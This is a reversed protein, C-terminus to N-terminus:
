ESALYKKFGSKVKPAKDPACARFLRQTLTRLVSAAGIAEDWLLNQEGYHFGRRQWAATHGKVLVLSVEQSDSGSDCVHLFGRTDYIVRRGDPFEAQSLGCSPWEPLLLPQLPHFTAHADVTANWELGGKSHVELHYVRGKEKRVFLGGAIGFGVHTIESIRHRKSVVKVPAAHKTLILSALAAREGHPHFKEGDFWPVSASGPFEKTAIVRGNELSIAKAMKQDILVLAGSQVRFQSMEFLLGEYTVLRAPERGTLSLVLFKLHRHESVGFVLIVRDEGEPDVVVGKLDTSPANPFLVRGSHVRLTWWCVADSTSIGVFGKGGIQFAKGPLPAGPVYLPWVALRYFYPLRGMESTLAAPSPKAVPSAFLDEADIRARALSRAGALSHRSLELSGDGDVLLSHLPVTSALRRWEPLHCLIELSAPHTVLFVEEGPRFPSPEADLLMALAAGPHPQPQLRVLQARVDSVTELTIATFGEADIAYVSAIAIQGGIKQRLLALASGLAFLRPKGWMFIGTDILILRRPPPEAPPSERRLYLAEGQALRVAFTLDDWALETMLLRSPDGRNTIDSVGGLPLEERHTVAKPVHLMAGIRRVLGAVQAPEGGEHELARLLDVPAEPAPAEDPVPLPLELQRSPIADVGTRLRLELHEPPCRTFAKELASLDKLLRAVGNLEPSRQQFVNLFPTRVFESLIRLSIASPISQPLEAYVEEFMTRLLRRRAPGSARLDAPLAHICDLGAGVTKWLTAIGAPVDSDGTAREAAAWLRVRCASADFSESAAAILWLISGLPPLGVPVCAELLETLEQRLAITTRGDSWVVCQDASSTEWAEALTADEWEWLHGQPACFYALTAPSHM